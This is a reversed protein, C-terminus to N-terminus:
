AAIPLFEKDEFLAPDMLPITDPVEVPFVIREIVDRRPDIGPAVETLRWGRDTFRMVCRETILTVDQGRERGMEGSFSVQEVAGVLKPVKGHKLISLRGDRVEVEAGGADFRGSFVLSRTASTIDVFGGAGATVHRCSGLYTTNVNGAKDVQLFSLLSRDAGGGQLISFQASWPMIADPNLACGFQFDTLPLGGTAGQETIWTVKEHQGAELLIRPVNASTGFGVNVVEGAKLERAIRRAIVKDVGWALREVSEVPRRMQGSIAPDYRTQTTQMQDPAVVIADVLVGPVHVAQPKLTGSQAV